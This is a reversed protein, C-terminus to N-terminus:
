HCFCRWHMLIRIDLGFGLTVQAASPFECQRGQDARESFGTFVITQGRTYQKTSRLHGKPGDDRNPETRYAPARGIRGACWHACNPHPIQGGGKKRTGSPKLPAGERLSLSHEILKDQQNNHQKGAHAFNQDNARKTGPQPETPTASRIALASQCRVRTPFGNDSDRGADRTPSLAGAPVHVDPPVDFVVHLVFFGFGYPGLSEVGVVGGNDGGYVEPASTRDRCCGV